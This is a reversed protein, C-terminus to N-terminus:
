LLHFDANMETQRHSVAPSASDLAGVAQPSLARRGHHHGISHHRAFHKRHKRGSRAGSYPHHARVLLAHDPQPRPHHRTRSRTRRRPHHGRRQSRFQSRGGPGQGCAHAGGHPHLGGGHGGHPRAHRALHPARGPERSASRHPGTTAAAAHAPGNRAARGRAPDLPGGLHIRGVYPKPSPWANPFDAGSVGIRLHHGPAFRWGTADLPVTVEYIQGPEIPTPRAHSERHTLNLVGKTVLAAAGDPAVDMLRVVLTAIDTDASVHLVVQGYGLMELPEDLAQSTWNLSYADELRQDVPLVHPSSASFMGFTAGVTPNYTYSVEDQGGAPVSQLVGDAALHLTQEAARELPWGAEFRWFGSTLPRDAAPPDYQQVYVTVPPEDMVGNDIGKLWYDYFRVMEHLHNIRPGPVGVDPAVHLWPGILVKKPCRLHEFARLNCNTYGDRWGGFLYAACEIAAYDECLSGQKWYDNYVHNSLWTLLWPESQLHEEWIAAWRDGTAEPYPPMANQVVMGLGYTAMDYLMQMSGGKYHCDDTFRNDTFYMPCIAKLAPPRHMAVQLSNFGGYSAGFMGVNGNCWPQEAMWAIAEVADLQEQVTYEDVATGGSSGTGRVDVRIGVFGRQALYHQNRLNGSSLDDKRYPYYDFVAPFPGNADPMFLHADLETGDNMPIRAHRRIRVDYVDQPLTM